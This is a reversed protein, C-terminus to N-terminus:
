PKFTLQPLVRLIMHSGAQRRFTFGARELATRVDRGSLDTPLKAV